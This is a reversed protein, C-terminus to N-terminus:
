MLIEVYEALINKEKRIIIRYRIPPDERNKLSDLIEWDNVDDVLQAKYQKKNIEIIKEKM